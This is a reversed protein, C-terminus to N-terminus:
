YKEIGKWRKKRREVRRRRGKLEYVGSAEEWKDRWEETEFTNAKRKFEKKCMSLNDIRPNWQRKRVWIRWGGRNKSNLLYINIHQESSLKMSHRNKKIRPLFRNIPYTSDKKNQKEKKRESKPKKLFNFGWGGFVLPGKREKEKISSCHMRLFCM